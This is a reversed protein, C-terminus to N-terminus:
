GPAATDHHDATCPRPALAGSFTSLPAHATDPIWSWLVSWSPSVTSGGVKEDAADFAPTGGLRLGVQAVLLGSTDRDGLGEFEPWLRDLPNATAKLKNEQQLWLEVESLSFQPSTDTGGVPVPFNEHRRRWNSVAARGVGAIRAIEALSVVVPSAETSRAM